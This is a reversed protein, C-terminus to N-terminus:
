IIVDLLGGLTLWYYVIYAGAVLLLVASAPQVYRAIGRLNTIVATKFLATALTLLTIVFGMGLAYLIFQFIALTYGSTALTSGVVALFIPLTCSLSAAGYAVGYALYGRGSQRQVNSGLRDAVRDGFTTYLMRGALMRGAVLILLVGIALGMWPLYRAITSTAISLVLGAVGFLIIFGLTVMASVWFAKAVRANAGAWSRARTDSSGLYLGLYAPLMAFGCPNVAAVMGAGFAYGLPLATALNGLWNSWTFSITEVGRTVQGTQTGTIFSGAIAIALAAVVAAIALMDRRRNMLNSLPHASM